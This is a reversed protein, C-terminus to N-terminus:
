RLIEFHVPRWCLAISNPIACLVTCEALVELVHCIGVHEEDGTILNFLDGVRLLATPFTCRTIVKLEPLRFHLALLDDNSDDDDDDDDVNGDADDNLNLTTGAM